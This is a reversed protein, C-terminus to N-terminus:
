FLGNLIILDPVTWNGCVFYASLFGDIGGLYGSYLALFDSPSWVVVLFGLSYGEGREYVFVVM